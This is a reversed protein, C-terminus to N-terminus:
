EIWSTARAWDRDITGALAEVVAAADLMVGVERNSDLASQTLNTSGIFARTRDVVIAKAHLGPSLLARVSAGGAALRRLAAESAASRGSAPAVISVRVGRASAESLGRAIEADSLEEMEIAISSRAGEVLGAIRARAGLPSVVLRSAPPGTGSSGALDEDFIRQADAVEVPDVIVALYERNGGLGARTFNCTMVLAREGDVILLKTHTLSFRPSAWSVQAGAANLRDYAAQNAGVAQFPSAELMVTVEKGARRAAVLAELAREDTLLYMQLRISRRAGAIAVLIPEPGQDPLIVLTPDVGVEAGDKPAWAPGCGLGLVVAIAILHV